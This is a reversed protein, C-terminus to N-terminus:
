TWRKLIVDLHALSWNTLPKHKMWTRNLPTVLQPVPPQRAAQMKQRVRELETSLSQKDTKIKALNNRFSTLQLNQEEIAEKLQAIQEADCQDLEEKRAKAKNLREQIEKHRQKIDPLVPSLRQQIDKLLKEDHNLNELHEQLTSAVPTLLQGRWQYLTQMTQAKAYAKNLKFQRELASRSDRSSTMYQKIIQPNNASLHAEIKVNSAKTNEIFVQFETCYFEFLEALPTVTILSIVRDSPTPKANITEPMLTLRRHTTTLDDMFNIGALTLFDSISIKTLDHTNNTTMLSSKEAHITSTDNSLIPATINFLDDQEGALVANLAQTVNDMTETRSQDFQFLQTSTLDNQELGMSSLNANSQAIISNRMSYSASLRGAIASRLQASGPTRARRELTRPSRLEVKRPRAPTLRGPTGMRLTERIDATIRRSRPTVTRSPALPQPSESIADLQILNSTNSLAMPENKAVIASSNLALTAKSKSPTQMTVDMPDAITKNPSLEQSMAPMSDQMTTSHFQQPTPQSNPLPINIITSPAELPLSSIISEETPWINTLETNNNQDEEATNLDLPFTVLQQQQQQLPQEFMEEEEEEHDDPIIGNGVCRTLDMTMSDPTPPTSSAGMWVDNLPKPKTTIGGACRTMDMTIDEDMNTTVDHINLHQTDTPTPRLAEANNAMDMTAPQPANPIFQVETNGRIGGVCRTFDMTNEIQMTDEDILANQYQDIIGGVCQTTEMALDQFEDTDFISTKEDSEEKVTDVLLPQTPNTAQNNDSTSQRLPSQKALRSPSGIARLRMLTSSVGMSSRRNTLPSNENIATFPSDMSMDSNFSMDLYEQNEQKGTFAAESPTSSASSSSTLQNVQVEYEEQWASTHEFSATDSARSGISLTGTVDENISLHLNFEDNADLDNADTNLNPMSFANTQFSADSSFSMQPSGFSDRKNSSFSVAKQKSKPTDVRDIVRVRATTAFSVRRGLSKRSLRRELNTMNMTKSEDYTGTTDQSDGYFQSLNIPVTMNHLPSKLIGRLPAKKLKSPTGLIRPGNEKNDSKGISLRESRRRETSNSSAGEAQKQRVYLSSELSKRRTM